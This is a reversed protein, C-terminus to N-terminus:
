NRSKKIIALKLKRFRFNLFYYMIVSTPIIIISWTLIGMMNALWLEKITFLLDTQFKIMVENASYPFPSTNFIKRGVKIFPIFLILQLPYVVYHSLQIIVM